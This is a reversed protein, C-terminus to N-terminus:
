PGVWVGDFWTNSATGDVTKAGAGAGSCYVEYFDTGNARDRCSVGAGVGGTGSATIQIGCKLISGNKYIAVFYISQDVVNTNFFAAANIQVVGALPTWKSNVADYYGGIDESETTFTLKTLTASVISGQSAGGKNASFTPLARVVLATGDARIGGRARWKTAVADWRWSIIDGAIVQFAAGGPPVLNGAVTLSPTGTYRISMREGGTTGAWYNDTTTNGSQTYAGGLSADAPKAISAVSVLAAGEQWMSALDDPTVARATDNGIGTEAITALEVKGAVTDSAAAPAVAAAAAAALATAQTVNTADTGSVGAAVGTLKHAGFPIDATVVSSGDIAIARQGLSQWKGAALDTAFTGSTHAVLCAYLVNTQTVLNNVVYAHATVWTGAMTFNGMLALAAASFSDPTVVGNVLAGDSRRVNGLADITEDTTAKLLAFQIDVQDGPLPDAPNATQFDSFDYSPVFKTPASM